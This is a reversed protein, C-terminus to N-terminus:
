ESQVGARYLARWCSKSRTILLILALEGYRADSTGMLVNICRPLERALSFHNSFSHWPPTFSGVGFNASSPVIPTNRLPQRYYMLIILSQCFVFLMSKPIALFAVLVLGSGHARRVSNHINGISAYLPWYKTHGTGVSVTTKDSGLIILVFM